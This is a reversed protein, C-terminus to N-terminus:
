ESAPELPAPELPVSEPSGAQAKEALGEVCFGLTVFAYVFERHALGTTFGQIVIALLCCFTGKYVADYYSYSRSDQTHFGRVRWVSYLGALLTTIYVLLAPIGVESAIQLYANHPSNPAYLT